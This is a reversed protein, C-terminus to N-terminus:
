AIQRVMEDYNQIRKRGRTSAQALAHDLLNHDIFNPGFETCLATIASEVASIDETFVDTHVAEESIYATADATVNGVM